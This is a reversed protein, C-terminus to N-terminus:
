EGSELEARADAVGDAFAQAWPEGNRDLAFLLLRAFHGLRPASMLTMAEALADPGAHLSFELKDNM